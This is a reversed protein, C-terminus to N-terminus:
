NHLIFIVAFRKAFFKFLPRILEFGEQLRLQLGARNILMHHNDPMKDIEETEIATDGSKLVNLTAHHAATETTPIAAIHLISCLTLHIGRDFLEKMKQHRPLTDRNPLIHQGPQLDSGSLQGPLISMAGSVSQSQELATQYILFL